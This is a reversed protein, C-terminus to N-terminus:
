ILENHLIQTFEDAIKENVVYSLAMDNPSQHILYIPSKDFKKKFKNIIMHINLIADNDSINNAIISVISCKPIINVRYKKSLKYVAKNIKIESKENTTTTVLFQGTTVINLNINEEKFVNFMESLFGSGENMDLSEIQFITVNSQCVILHVKNEIYMDKCNIITGECEANFTNKIYIPISKLECPEISLPHVLQSGMTASEQAVKYKVNKILKAEKVKRPDTTYLGNVDTWIELRIADIASAILSASTNSGSRTLICYKNNSTSAIFGQTVVINHCYITNIAYEADCYFEGKINLTFDDIESSHSKNKIFLRANVLLNPIFCKTLYENVITSSLIEGYSIIKIKQQTLDITTDSYFSLIDEKLDDLIKHLIRHNICLEECLNMHTEYIIDYFGFEGKLVSYLNNTTKGVASVVLFVQYKDSLECIKDKMVNLGKACQSSGGFKLVIAMNNNKYLIYFTM